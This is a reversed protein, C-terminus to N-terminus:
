RPKETTADDDLWNPPKGRHELILALEDKALCLSRVKMNGIADNLEGGNRKCLWRFIYAALEDTTM